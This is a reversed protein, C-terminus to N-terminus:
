NNTNELILAHCVSLCVPRSSYGRYVRERFFFLFLIIRIFELMIQCAWARSGEWVSVDELVVAVHIESLLQKNLKSGYIAIGM